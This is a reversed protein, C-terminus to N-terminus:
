SGRPEPIRITPRVRITRPHSARSDGSCSVPPIYLGSLASRKSSRCDNRSLVNADDFLWLSSVSVFVPDSERGFGKPHRAAHSRLPILFLSSHHIIFPSSREKDRRENSLM